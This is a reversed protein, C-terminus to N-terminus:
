SRVQRELENIAAALDQPRAPATRFLDGIREVRSPANGLNFDAISLEGELEDWQLPMSVTAGDVPRVVYPPVVTQERRNQLFDVYVRGERQNIVRQVTAIDGHDRVVMRAVAECFMRSQTYTYGPALPICVHIGSSGSTKLYPEIGVGRLLKGVTRAIKV